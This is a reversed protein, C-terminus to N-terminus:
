NEMPHQRALFQYALADHAMVVLIAITEATRARGLDLVQNALALIAGPDANASATLLLAALERPDDTPLPTGDLQQTQMGITANYREALKAAPRSAIYALSFLTGGATSASACLREIEAPADAATLLDVVRQAMEDPTM